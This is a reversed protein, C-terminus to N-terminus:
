QWACLDAVHIDLSWTPIAISDAEPPYVGQMQNRDFVYDILHWMGFAWAAYIILRILM